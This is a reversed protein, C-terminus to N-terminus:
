KGRKTDSIQLAEYRAIKNLDVKKFNFNNKIMQKLIQSQIKCDLKWEVIYVNELDVFVYAWM